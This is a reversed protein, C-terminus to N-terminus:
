FQVAAQISSTITFKGLAPDWKGDYGLTIVAAGTKYNIAMGLVAYTPDVLDGWFGSERGLFYKEYSADFFFGGILGEGLRAIAKAHPYDAQATTDVGPIAKFPGDLSALFVLKEELFSFGLSAYWGAYSAGSTPLQMYDYRVKRYLDYNRDFYAPIFGDQLLRIQAGYLIVGLLKGGAGIMAGTTRNPEFAVDAFAALPFLKGGLIPVTLDAGYVSLASAGGGSYLYPERDAVFTFGLQANKLIPIETGALPRAYLRAGLVDLRALNGTALQLGLYPFNFLNGDLGFELGFIRQAPMFRMNSYGGMVFGNGLTLDSISGLKAYLPDVGRLGYRLYLFKPLYVDLFSKGNGDYNPVWDGQYIEVAQDPTPYLKFRMTLDLGIGFKGFSLDPQFGLRSWAEGSGDSKPLVDTGLNIGAKFAFPNKGEDAPDQAFALGAVLVLALAAVLKRM